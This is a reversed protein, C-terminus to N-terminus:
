NKLMRNKKEKQFERRLLARERRLLDGDKPNIKALEEKLSLDLLKMSKDLTNLESFNRSVNKWLVAKFNRAENEDVDLIDMIQDLIIKHITRLFERDVM